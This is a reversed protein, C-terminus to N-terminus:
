ATTHLRRHAVLGAPVALEAGATRRGDNGVVHRLCSLVGVREVYRQTV